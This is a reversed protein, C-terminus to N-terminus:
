KGQITKEKFSAAIAKFKEVFEDDTIKGDDKLKKLARINNAVDPKLELVADKEFQAMFEASVEGDKVPKLCLSIIDLVAIAIFFFLLLLFFFTDYGITLAIYLSAESGELIICSIIAILAACLATITIGIGTVLKGNKARPGKCQLSGFIIMLIGSVTMLVFAVKEATMFESLADTFIKVTFILGGIFSTVGLVITIIAGILGTVRKAKNYM